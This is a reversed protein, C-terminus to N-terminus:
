IRNSYRFHNQSVDILLSSKANCSYVFKIFTSVGFFCSQRCIFWYRINENLFLRKWHKENRIVKCLTKSLRICNIRWSFMFRDVKQLVNKQWLRFYKKPKGSFIVSQAFAEKKDATKRKLASKCVGIKDALVFISTLCFGSFPKFTRVDVKQLCQM